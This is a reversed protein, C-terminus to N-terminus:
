LRYSLSYELRPDLSLFRTLPIRFEATNPNVIVGGDVNRLKGPVSISLTIAAGDIMAAIEEAPAYEEFVWILMERLEAVSGGSKFIGTVTQSVPDDGLPVVGMIAEANDTGLSITIREIQGERSRRIVPAAGASFSRPFINELEPFTVLLELTAPNQNTLGVLGVGTNQAFAETLATTDFYSTNETVDVGQMRALDGLYRRFLPAMTIRSRALGARDNELAISTEVSCGSLLLGVCALSTLITTRLLRKMHVYM